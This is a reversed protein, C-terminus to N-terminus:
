CREHQEQDKIKAIYMYVHGKNQAGLAKTEIHVPLCYFHGRLYKIAALTEGM